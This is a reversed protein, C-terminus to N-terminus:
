QKYKNVTVCFDFAKKLWVLREKPTTNKVIYMLHEDIDKNRKVLKKSTKLM